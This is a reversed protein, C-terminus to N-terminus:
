GQVFALLDANIIDVHTTCMGRPLGSSTKLTGHILLNITLLASDAIPVSQDDEGHQVQAPVGIANLNEAFDTESATNLSLADVTAVIVV